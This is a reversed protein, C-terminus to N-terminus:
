RILVVTSQRNIIEPDATPDNLSMVKAQIDWIYVGQELEQGDFTGDWSLDQSPTETSYVMRGWRDFIKMTFSSYECNDSSKITFKDNIGDGNPTFANPVFVNCGIQNPSSVGGGKQGFGSFSALALLATFLLTSAFQKM